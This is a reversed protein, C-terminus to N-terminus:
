FKLHWITAELLRIGERNRAFERGLEYGVGNTEGTAPNKILSLPSGLDLGVRLKGTPTLVRVVDAINCTM